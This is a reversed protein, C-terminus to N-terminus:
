RQSHCGWTALKLARAGFQDACVRTQTAGSSSTSSRSTVRSASCSPRNPAWGSSMSSAEYKSTASAAWAASSDCGAKPLRKTPARQSASDCTSHSCRRPRSSPSAVTCATCKMLATVCLLRVCSRLWRLLPAPASPLPKSTLTVVSRAWAMPRPRLTAEGSRRTCCSGPSVPSSGTAEIVTRWVRGGPPRRVSHKAVATACSSAVSCRMTSRWRSRLWTARAQRM